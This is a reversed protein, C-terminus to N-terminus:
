NGVINGQADVRIRKVASPAAAPTPAAGGGRAPSIVNSDDPLGYSDILEPDFQAKYTRNILGGKNKVIKLIKSVRDRITKSDISPNIDSEAWSAKETPTLTAGFTANRQPLTYLQNWAAWWNAAEKSGNTGIGVAALANPFKSQPGPGLKQSYEDKFTNMLDDAGNIMSATNELKNRDAYTLTKPKPVGTKDAKELAAQAMLMQFIHTMNNERKTEELVGAMHGLQGEQYAKTQANDIDKQRTGQLDTAYDDAQKSMQQGFPQLVRDGTLSGLEGFSRRRRLQEAIAKQTQKDTPAAGILTNYLNDDMETAGLLRVKDALM